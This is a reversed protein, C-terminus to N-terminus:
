QIQLLDLILWYERLRAGSIVQGEGPLGPALHIHTRNMRCLGQSHILPWHTMYSGHVAEQPCDPADVVVARLELDKVQVYVCSVEFCLLILICFLVIFCIKPLSFYFSFLAILGGGRLSNSFQVWLLVCRNCCPEQSCQGTCHTRSQGQDTPTWEWSPKTTQLAAQWEHGGSEGCGGSFILQVTRPCSTWGCLHLWRILCCPVFLIICYLPGKATMSTYLIYQNCVCVCVGSGMNLGM